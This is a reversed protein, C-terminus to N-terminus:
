AVRQNKRVTRLAWLLVRAGYLAGLSWVYTQWIFAVGIFLGAAVLLVAALSAVAAVILVERAVVKDM